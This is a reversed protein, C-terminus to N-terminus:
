LDDAPFESLSSFMFDLDLFVLFPQDVIRSAWFTRVEVPQINKEYPPVRRAGRPNDRASTLAKIKSALADDTLEEPHVRTDDGPGEYMWMPHVRAQLPQIRRILFTELLDMGNVGANVAGVMAVTLIGVDVKEEKSVELSPPAVVRAGSYPPLGISSGESPM